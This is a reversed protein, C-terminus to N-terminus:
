IAPTTNVQDRFSTWPYNPFNRFSLPAKRHPLHLLGLLLDDSRHLLQFCPPTRLLNGALPRSRDSATCSSTSTRRSSTLSAFRNRASSSSELRMFGPHLM